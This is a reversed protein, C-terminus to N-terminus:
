EYHYALKRTLIKWKDPFETKLNKPDKEGMYNFLAKGLKEIENPLDEKLDNITRNNDDKDLLKEMEDVMKLINNDGVTEQEM